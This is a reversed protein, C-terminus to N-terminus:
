NPGEMVDWGCGGRLRGEGAGLDEVGECGRVRGGRVGRRGRLLRM